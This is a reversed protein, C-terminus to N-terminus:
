EDDEADSQADPTIDIPPEEDPYEFGDFSHTHHMRGEVRKLAAIGDVGAIWKNLDAKVHDSASNVSLDINRIYAQVGAGEKISKVIQNYVKRIKPRNFARTLNDTRIKHHKAALAIPKGEYAMEEFAQAYEESTCVDRFSLVQPAGGESDDNPAPAEGKVM